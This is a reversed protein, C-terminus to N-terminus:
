VGKIKRGLVDQDDPKGEKDENGASGKRMFKLYRIIGMIRYFESETLNSRSFIKQLMIQTNVMKYDPYGSMQLVDSFGKIMLSFNEPSAPEAMHPTSEPIQKMMEYLIISVAHSLNFVPYEPNAPIYIFANCLELESNRLGDDERGFVLAIREGSDIRLKWFDWPTTPLRLFKRDSYTPASSTAAVITFDKVAEELSDYIKASELLTKGNMARSYAEDTLEPPSVMRLDTLSSNKLLRAVAGINGQYKPGVLIVSIRESLSSLRESFISLYNEKREKLLVKSPTSKNLKQGM